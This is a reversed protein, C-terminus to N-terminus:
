VLARKIMEVPQCIGFTSSAAIANHNQETGPGFDSLILMLLIKPRNAM